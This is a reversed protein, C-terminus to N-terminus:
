GCAIWLPAYVLRLATPLTKAIATVIMVITEVAIKTECIQHIGGSTDCSPAPMSRAIDSVIIVEPM